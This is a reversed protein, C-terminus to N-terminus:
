AYFGLVVADMERDTKTRSMEILTEADIGLRYRPQPDESEIALIGAEAVVDPSMIGGAERTATIRRLMQRYVEGYVREDAEDLGAVATRLAAELRPIAPTDIGGPQLLVVRVGWASSEMRMVDALGELAFKSAVYAAQMPTAVRGSYSSTFVLRGRSDRLVPITAQYIALHSACNVEMTDRLTALPTLEAPGMPMAAACVMVADLRDLRAVEDRVLGAVRDADALDLTIVRACGPIQRTLEEVKEPRSVTAVVQYGRSIMRRCTEQGVGGNAGILLVRKGPLQQTTSM